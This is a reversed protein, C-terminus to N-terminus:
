SGARAKGLAEAQRVDLELAGRDEKPTALTALTADRGILWLATALVGLSV